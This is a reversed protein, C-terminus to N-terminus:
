PADEEPHPARTIRERGLWRRWLDLRDEYDMSPAADDKGPALVGTERHFEEALREFRENPTEDSDTRATM